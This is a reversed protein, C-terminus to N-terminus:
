LSDIAEQLAAIGELVPAGRMARTEVLDEVVLTARQQLRSM